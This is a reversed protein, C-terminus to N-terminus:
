KHIIGGVVLWPVTFVDFSSQTMTVLLLPRGSEHSKAALRSEPKLSMSADVSRSIM